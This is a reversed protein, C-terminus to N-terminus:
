FIKKLDISLNIKQNVINKVKQKINVFEILASETEKVLLDYNQVFHNRAVLESNIMKEIIKVSKMILKTESEAKDLSLNIFYNKANVHISSIKKITNSFNIHKLPINFENKKNSYFDYLDSIIKPIKNYIYNQLAPGTNIIECFKIVKKSYIILKQNIEITNAKALAHDFEKHILSIENILEDIKSSIMNLLIRKNKYIDIAIRLNKDYFSKESRTFEDQRTVKLANNNFSTENSNLIIIKENIEQLKINFNNNKIKKYTLFLQSIDKNLTKIQDSMKDWSLSLKKYLGIFKHNADSIKRIRSLVIDCKKLRNENVEDSLKLIMKRRKSSKFVKYIVFIFVLVLMFTILILFLVILFTIKNMYKNYLYVWIINNNILM